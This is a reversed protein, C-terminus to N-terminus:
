QFLNCSFIIHFIHFHGRYLDLEFTHQEYCSIVVYYYYQLDSARSCIPPENLQKAEGIASTCGQM